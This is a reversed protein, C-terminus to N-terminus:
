NLLRKAIEFRFEEKLEFEIANRMASNRDHACVRKTNQDDGRNRIRTNRTDATNTILKMLTTVFTKKM